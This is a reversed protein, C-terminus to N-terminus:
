ERRRSSLRSERLDEKVAEITQEPLLPGADQIKKKGSLALFATVATWLLTVILAALWPAVALSLALILLATLSGLTLLATIASGSLMGVGLGASKAKEAMEARAAALEKRVLILIDESLQKMSAALSEADMAPINGLDGSTQGGCM